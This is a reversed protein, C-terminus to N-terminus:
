ERDFNSARGVTETMIDRGAEPSLNQMRKERDLVNFV